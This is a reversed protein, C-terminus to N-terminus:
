SPLRPGATATARWNWGNWRARRWACRQMTAPRSGRGRALPTWWRRSVRCCGSAGCNRTRGSPPRMLLSYEPKLGNPRRGVPPRSRWSPRGSPSMGRSWVSRPSAQLCVGAPAALEPLQQPVPQPWVTRLCVSAGGELVLQSTPHGGRRATAGGGREVGAAAGPGPRPAVPRSSSGPWARGCRLGVGLTRYHPPGAGAGGDGGSGELGSGAAPHGVM